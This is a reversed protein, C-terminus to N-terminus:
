KFKPIGPGQAPRSPDAGFNISNYLIKVLGWVSVMVFLAIIGFFIMQKAEKYAKESNSRVLNFLGWLFALVTLSIIFPAVYLLMDGFQKVILILDM